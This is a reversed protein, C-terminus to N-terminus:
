SQTRSWAPGTISMYVNAKNLEERLPKVVVSVIMELCDERFVGLELAQLSCCLQEVEVLHSANSTWDNRM